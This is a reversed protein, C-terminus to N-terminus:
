RLHSSPSINRPTERPKACVASAKLGEFLYLSFEGGAVEWAIESTGPEIGGGHPALVVITSRSQALVRYDVGELEAASLEVYSSYTDM